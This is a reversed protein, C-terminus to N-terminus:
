GAASPSRRPFGLVVFYFIMMGSCLTAIVGKLIVPLPFPSILSEVLAALFFLVMSSGMVPMTEVATLRVADIRNLGDTRIWGMGIRLGAGAALVIATLEFPAHATVFAFFNDGGAQGAQAMYGFSAGLAAAEFITEVIGPVILIGTGFCVLGIGTNHKIYFTSMFLNVDFSRAALPKSFNTDLQEIMTPGMVIECYGPWVKPSAALVASIVFTGWFLVFMVQVCRDNFVRQPVDVLLVRAWESVQFMRTRYLCNHARGVLRHLYRITNPPLQNSTALALDACAARYLSAFRTIKAPVPRRGAQVEDCLRDLETWNGRRKELLEAVKM